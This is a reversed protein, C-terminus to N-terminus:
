RWTVSGSPYLFRVNGNEVSRIRTVSNPMGHGLFVREADVPVAWATYPSDSSEVLVHSGDPSFDGLTVSRDASTLKKMATGDINMTYISGQMAFALKRGDRSAVLRSAYDPLIKLVTTPITAPAFPISVNTIILEDYSIMALRGDPLWEWSNVDFFRALIQGQRSFVTVVNVGGDDGLDISHWEVAFKTKDPSQKVQGSFDGLYTFGGIKAGSTNLYAIEYDSPDAPAFRDYFTIETGDLSAHINAGQNKPSLLTTLGSFLDTKFMDGAFRYWLTGLLGKNLGGTSPASGLVQPQVAKNRWYPRSFHCLKSRIEGDEDRSLLKQAPAPNNATLNIPAGANLPVLYSEPCGAFVYGPGIAAYAIGQTLIMFQGDTSFDGVSENGNSTTIQRLNTGNVNMVWVHRDSSSSGSNVTNALLSIAIKTGDPSVKLSHPFDGPFRKVLTTTTFTKDVMYISDGRALLIRGDPMWEYADFDVFRKFVAGDAANFLTPVSVGIADGRGSDSWEVLIYKKDPSLLTPGSFGPGKFWRKKTVGDRDFLVLEEASSGFSIFPSFRDTTLFDEGDASVGFGGARPRLVRQVGTAIDLEVYQGPAEYYLKGSVNPNIVSLGAQGPDTVSPNLAAFFKVGEERWIRLTNVAYDVEAANTTYLYAGNVLNALRYVPQKLGDIENAIQFTANDLRFRQSVVPDTLVYDREAVSATYFYGGNILNAFRFVTTGGSDYGYFAVGEYRFDSNSAKIVDAEAASGTYFLSREFTPRFPFDPYNSWGGERQGREFSRSRGYCARCAWLRLQGFLVNSFLLIYPSLIAASIQSDNKRWKRTLERLVLVKENNRIRSHHQSPM